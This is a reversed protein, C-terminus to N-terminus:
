NVYREQEDWWLLARQEMDKIFDNKGDMYGQIDEPFQEALAIKLQSYQEAYEEHARMFDRFALHRIAEPSGAAFTHINHLRVRPSRDKRFYRRGPIGYEGLAEYGLAIMAPNCADVQAIDKVEILFDIVPKAHIGAISTSGIHHVAVANGGLADQLIPVQQSFQLSWAPDHPVVHVFMTM